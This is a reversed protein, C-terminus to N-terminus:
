IVMISVGHSKHYGNLIYGYKVKFHTTFHKHIISISKPNM